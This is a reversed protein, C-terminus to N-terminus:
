SARMDEIKHRKPLNRAMEAAKDRMGVSLFARAVKLMFGRQQFLAKSGPSARLIERGAHELEADAEERTSSAFLYAASLAHAQGLARARPNM